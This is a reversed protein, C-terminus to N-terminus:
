KQNLILRAFLGGIEKSNTKIFDEGEPSHVWFMFGKRKEIKEMKKINVEHGDKFSIFICEGLQIVDNRDKSVFGVVAVPLETLMYVKYYIERTTM